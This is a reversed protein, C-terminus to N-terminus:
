TLPMYGMDIALILIFRNLTVTKVPYLLAAKLFCALITELFPYYVVGVRSNPDIKDISL